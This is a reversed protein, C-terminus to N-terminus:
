CIIQINAPCWQTSVEGASVNGDVGVHRTGNMRNSNNSGSVGYGRTADFQLDVDVGAVVGFAIYICICICHRNSDNGGNMGSAINSIDGNMGFASNIKNGSISRSLLVHLNKGVVPDMKNANPIDLGTSHNKFSAMMHWKDCTNHKINTLTIESILLM